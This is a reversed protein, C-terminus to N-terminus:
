VVSKRDPYLVQSMLYTDVIAERGLLDILDIGYFKKIMPIDYNIVNHGIIKTSCNFVDFVMQSNLNSGSMEGSFNTDLDKWCICYITTSDELLGNAEIDFVLEKM